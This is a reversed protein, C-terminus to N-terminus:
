KLAGRKSLFKELRRLSHAASLFAASRLDRAPIRLAPNCEIPNRLASRLGSGAGKNSKATAVQRYEVGFDLRAGSGGAGLSAARGFFEMNEICDVRDLFIQPAHILIMEFCGVQKLIPCNSLNLNNAFGDSM